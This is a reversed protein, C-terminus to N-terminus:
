QQGFFQVKFVLSNDAIVFIYIVTIIIIARIKNNGNNKKIAMIKRIMKIIVTFAGCNIIM